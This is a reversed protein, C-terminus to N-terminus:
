NPVWEPIWRTEGISSSNIAENGTTEDANLQTALFGNVQVATIKVLYKNESKMQVIGEWYSNNKWGTIKVKDGITYRYTSKPETEQVLNTETQKTTQEFEDSYWFKINSKKDIYAKRDGLKVYALGDKFPLAFDWQPQIVVEGKTNIYGSKNSREVICLGNTFKNSAMDWQNHIVLDGETNIFGYKGGKRIRALGDYFSGTYDWQPQIVIDGKTNIYGWKGDRKV